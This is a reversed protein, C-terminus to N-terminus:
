ERKKPKEGARHTLKEYARQVRRFEAADGGRDPHTELARKRFARKIDEPSNYARWVEAIPAAITTSVTIKL